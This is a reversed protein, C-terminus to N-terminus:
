VLDIKTKDLRGETQEGKAVIMNQPHVSILLQFNHLSSQMWPLMDLPLLSQRCDFDCFTQLQCTILGLTVLLRASVEGGGVTEIDTGKKERTGLM